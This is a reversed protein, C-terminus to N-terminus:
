IHKMLYDANEKGLALLMKEKGEEDLELYRKKLKLIHEVIKMKTKM